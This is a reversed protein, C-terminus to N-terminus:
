DIGSDRLCNIQNHFKQNVVYEYEDYYTLLRLNSIHSLVHFILLSDIITSPKM